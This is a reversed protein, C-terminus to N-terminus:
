RYEGGAVADAMQGEEGGTGAVCPEGRGLSTGQDECSDKERKMFKAEERFDRSREERKWKARM